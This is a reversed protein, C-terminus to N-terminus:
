HFYIMKRKSKLFSKIQFLYFLINNQFKIFYHKEPFQKNKADTSNLMEAVTFTNIVCGHRSQIAYKTIKITTCPLHPLLKYGKHYVPPIQVKNVKHLCLQPM